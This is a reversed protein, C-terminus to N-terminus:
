GFLRTYQELTLQNIIKNYKEELEMYDNRWNDVEDRITEYDALLDNYKEELDNYDSVIEEFLNNLRRDYSDYNFSM